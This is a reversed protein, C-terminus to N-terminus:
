RTKEKYALVNVYLTNVGTVAAFTVPKDEGCRIPIPLTMVAGDLGTPFPQGINVGDSKLQIGSRTGSSNYISIFLIVWEMGIGPKGFLSKDSTDTASNSGLGQTAADAPRQPIM